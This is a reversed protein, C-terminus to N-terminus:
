SNGLKRLIELTRAEGQPDRLRRRLDLEAELYMVAQARDKPALLFGLRHLAEAQGPEDDVVELYIALARQLLAVAASVNDEKARELALDELVPLMNALTKDALDKKGGRLSLDVSREYSAISNELEGYRDFVTGLTNHAWAQLGLGTDGGKEEGFLRIAEALVLANREDGDRLAVACADMSAEVEDWDM